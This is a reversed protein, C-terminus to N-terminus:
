RERWLRWLDEYAVVAVVAGDRRRYLGVEGPQVEPLDRISGIKRVPLPLAEDPQPQAMIGLSEIADGGAAHLYRTYRPIAERFANFCVRLLYIVPNSTRSLDIKPVAKAMALAADQIMDDLFSYGSFRPQKATHVAIGILMDALEQCVAGSAQAASVLPKLQDESYPPPQSM